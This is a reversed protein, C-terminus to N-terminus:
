TCVENFQDLVIQQDSCKLYTLQHVQNFTLKSVWLFLTRNGSLVKKRREKTTYEHELFGLYIESKDLYRSGGM